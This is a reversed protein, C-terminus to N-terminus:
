AMDMGPFESAAVTVLTHAAGNNQRLIPGVSDRRVGFALFCHFNTPPTFADRQTPAERGPM